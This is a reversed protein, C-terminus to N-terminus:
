APQFFFRRAQACKPISCKPITPNAHNEFVISKGAIGSKTLIRIKQGFELTLNSFEINLADLDRLLVKFMPNTPHELIMNNTVKIVKEIRKLIKMRAVEDGEM